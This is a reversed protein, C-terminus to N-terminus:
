ILESFDKIEDPFIPFIQDWHSPKFDLKNLIGLIYVNPNRKGNGFNIYDPCVKINYWYRLCDPSSMCWNRTDLVKLKEYIQNKTTHM